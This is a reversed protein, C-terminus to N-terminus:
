VEEKPNFKCYETGWDEPYEAYLDPDAVRAAPIDSIGATINMFKHRLVVLAIAESDDIIDSFVDWAVYGEERPLKNSLDSLHIRYVPQDDPQYQNWAYFEHEMSPIVKTLLVRTSEGTNRSEWEDLNIIELDGMESALPMARIIDPVIKNIRLPTGDDTSLTMLLFLNPKNWFYNSFTYTTENGINYSHFTNVDSDYMMKSQKLVYDSIGAWKLCSPCASYLAGKDYFKKHEGTDDHPCTTAEQILKM